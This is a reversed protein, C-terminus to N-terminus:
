KDNNKMKRQASIQRIVKIIDSKTIGPDFQKKLNTTKNNEHTDVMNFFTKLKYFITKTPQVGSIPSGYCKGIDQNEKAWVM